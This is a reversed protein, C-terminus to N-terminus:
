SQLTIIVEGHNNWTANNFTAATVIGTAPYYSGGGGGTGGDGGWSGGGGGSYGGGGGGYGYSTHSGAGGGGGFGGFCNGTTIAGGSVGGAGGIFGESYKRAWRGDNIIQPPNPATVGNLRSDGLVGAGGSARNSGDGHYGGLGSTGGRSVPSAKGDHYGDGGNNSVQGNETGGALNGGGGGGGAAVLLTDNVLPTETTTALFVFSGGGGGPNNQSNLNGIHGQLGPIIVLKDNFTLTATVTIDAGYGYGAAGGGRAGRAQITYTGTKPVTWLQYGPKNQYLNFLSTNAKWTTSYFGKITALSPGYLDTSGTNNSVFTHSTFNYHQPINWSYTIISPKSLISIGDTAKFTVNINAYASDINGAAVNIEASDRSFPTFTYVSSDLSVSFVYQASDSLIISHTLPLADSDVARAVVVLPTASDVITYETSPEGVGSGISDAWRPNANIINQTYWGSGNSFYLRSAATVFAQDGATHSIPLAGISDYVTVGSGGVSSAIATVQASDLGGASAVLAKGGAGDDIAAKGDSTISEEEIARKMFTALQRSKSFRGTFPRYAM